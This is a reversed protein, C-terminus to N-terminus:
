PFRIGDSAEFPAPRSGMDGGRRSGAHSSVKPPLFRDVDETKASFTEKGHQDRGSEREVMWHLDFMMITKHRDTQVMGFRNQHRPLNNRTMYDLAAEEGTM